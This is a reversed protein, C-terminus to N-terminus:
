FAFPKTAYRFCLCSDVFTFYRARNAGDPRQPGFGIGAFAASDASRLAAIGKLFGATSITGGLRAATQLTFLLDCSYGAQFLSTRDAVQVSHRRMVDLCRTRAPSAGPDNQEDVDIAPAWGLGAAGRLQSQNNTQQVYPLVYSTLAWKPRYANSEALKMGVLTMNGNPDLPMLHTVNESQFRLLAAKGAAIGGDSANPDIAAEVAVSMGHRRLAPKLEEDAIRKQDPVDYRIVGIKTTPGAFWRQRALTDVWTPVARYQGPYLTRMLSFTRFTREESGAPNVFLSFVGRKELCAPLNDTFPGGTAVAVVKHDETWASCMQQDLQALTESSQAPIEVYVPKIPRGALGGTRNVEDVLAEFVARGDAASIRFGSADGAQELGQRYAIGIEVPGRGPVVPAATAIPGGGTVPGPATGPARSSGGSPV